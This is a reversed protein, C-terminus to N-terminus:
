RDYRELVAVAKLVAKEWRQKEATLAASNRAIAREQYASVVALWLGALNDRRRCELDATATAIEEASPKDGQQWRKDDHVKWPDAYDYGARNMCSSWQAFAQRLTPDAEAEPAVQRSLSDVLSLPEDPNLSIGLAANAEGICGNEPIAMGNYTRPGTGFYVSSEVGSLPSPSPSASAANSQEDDHPAHYGWKAVTAADSIGFRRHHDSAQAPDPPTLLVTARLFGFRRMCEDALLGSANSYLVQQEHSLSFADLPLVLQSDDTIVRAPKLSPLASKPRPGPGCGAVLGLLMLVIIALCRRVLIM